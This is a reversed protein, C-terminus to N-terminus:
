YVNLSYMACLVVATDDVIVTMIDENYILEAGSVSENGVGREDSRLAVSSMLCYCCCCLYRQPFVALFSLQEMTPLLPVAPSLSRPLQATGHHNVHHRLPM